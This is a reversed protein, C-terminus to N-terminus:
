SPPALRAARAEDLAVARRWLDPTLETHGHSLALLRAVSLCRQLDEQTFDPSARRREVFDDQIHQSVGEPITLSAHRTRALYTRWAQLAEFSANPAVSAQTSHVPVHVDVPLFTKAESVVLMILDTDLHMESYPLVYPLSRKQLVTTLARINQLGHDQLKGEQMEREDVLVCTGNPLQLRGAHTNQEAHRVFLTHKPDNLTALSLPQRVVAPLLSELIPLLEHDVMRSLNLSISGVTVGARRAHIRALLALLVYEAALVDNGLATALYEILAARLADHSVFPSTAPASVAKPASAPQLFTQTISELPMRTWHLVHISPMWQVKAEEGSLHWDGALQGDMSLIGVLDVVDATKLEEAEELNYMKIMATVSPKDSLPARNVESVDVHLHDLAEALTHAPGVAMEHAWATMGPLSVGYFVARESVCDDDILPSDEEKETYKADNGYM